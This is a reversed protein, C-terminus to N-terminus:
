ELRQIRRTLLVLRAALADGRPELVLRDLSAQPPLAGLLGVIDGVGGEFEVTLGEGSPEMTWAGVAASEMTAVSDPALLRVRLGEIGVEAARRAVLRAVPLAGVDDGGLSALTRESERWALSEAPTPPQLDARWRDLNAAAAELGAARAELAETRGLAAHGVAFAVLVGGLTVSACEVWFRHTRAFAAAPRLREAYGSLAARLKEKV